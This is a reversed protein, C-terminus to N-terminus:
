QKGRGINFFSEWWRPETKIEIPNKNELLKRFAVTFNKLFIQEDMAYSETIIRFSSDLILEMNAPSITYHGSLDEYVVSGDERKKKKWLNNLLRKFIENTLRPAQSTPNETHNNHSRVEPSISYDENLLFGGFLAVIDKDNLGIRNGIERMKSANTKSDPKPLDPPCASSDVADLIIESPQWDINSLGMAEAALTGALTWIETYSLESHVTKMIELRNIVESLGQNSAYDKEPSFRMTAGYCGGKKTQPDYSLSCSIILKMILPAWSGHPKSEDPFLASVEKRIDNWNIKKRRKKLVEAEDIEFDAASVQNATMLLILSVFTGGLLFLSHPHHKFTEKIKSNSVPKRRILSTFSRRSLRVRKDYLVGRFFVRKKLKNITRTILMSM